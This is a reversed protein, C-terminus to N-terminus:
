PHTPLLESFSSGLITALLPQKPRNVRQREVVVVAGREVIEALGHHRELVRFPGRPAHEAARVRECFPNLVIQSGRLCCEM